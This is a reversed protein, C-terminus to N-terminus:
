FKMSRRKKSPSEMMAMVAGGPRQSDSPLRAPNDTWWWIDWRRLLLSWRLRMRPRLKSRFIVMATESRYARTACPSPSSSSNRRARSCRIRNRSYTNWCRWLAAVM